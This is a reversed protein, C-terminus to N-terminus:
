FGDTYIGFTFAFIAFNSSESGLKLTFQGYEPVEVAKFMRGETVHLYSRGEDDFQIDDGAQEPTLWVDDLTVFVDFPEPGQPDIVVNASVAEMRLAIYDDLGESERAHVIAEAENRWLGNLVWQQSPYEDTGAYTDVYEVDVDAGEYYVEQAAYLGNPSYNRQYGGYLERTVRTVNEARPQHKVQGVPIDSVDYGAETLATRIEHETEDYEGEGFHSFRLEGDAGILYKAPWYRNGFASWTDMENDLAHPWDLGNEEVEREVNSKIKEFEFEPAHIGVIRLGKDSYKENWERLFPFTRICNVCTYTWFDILVVKNDDVFGGITVPESNVWEEIGVVEVGKYPSKDQDVTPSPAPTPKEDVTTATATKEVTPAPTSTSVTSVTSVTPEAPSDGGCAAALLVALLAVAATLTYRSLARGSLRGLLYTPM